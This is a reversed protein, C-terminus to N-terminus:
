RLTSRLMHFISVIVKGQIAGDGVEYGKIKLSNVGVLSHSVYVWSAVM